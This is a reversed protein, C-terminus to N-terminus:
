LLIFLSWILWLNRTRGKVFKSVQASQSQIGVRVHISNLQEKPCLRYIRVDQQEFRSGRSSTLFACDRAGMRSWCLCCRWPLQLCVRTHSASYQGCKPRVWKGWQRDHGLSHHPLLLSPPCSIYSPRTRLSLGIGWRVTDLRLMLECVRLTCM